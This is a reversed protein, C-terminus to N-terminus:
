NIVLLDQVEDLLKKYQIDFVYRKIEMRDDNVNKNLFLSLYFEKKNLFEENFVLKLSRSYSTSLTDDNVQSVWMLESYAFDKFCSVIFDVLDSKDTEKFFYKERFLSQDFINVFNNKKLIMGINSNVDEKNLSINNTQKSNKSKKEKINNKLVSQIEYEANCSELLTEIIQIKTTEEVFTMNQPYAEIFIDFTPFFIKVKQFCAQLYALENFISNFLSLDIDLSLDKSVLVEKLFVIITNFFDIELEKYYKSEVVSCFYCLGYIINILNSCNDDKLIKNKNRLLFSVISQKQNEKNMILLLAEIFYLSNSMFPYIINHLDEIIYSLSLFSKTQILNVLTKLLVAIKKNEWAEKRDQKIKYSNEKDKCLIIENINM